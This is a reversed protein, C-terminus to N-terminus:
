VKLRISFKRIAAFLFIATMVLLILTEDWVYALGNGKLMIDKLIIIFWRPPLCASLWQLALPMNEIPFIFGSLLMTPLMLIFLSAFMAVQQSKAITSILIGVSLSLTIYLLLEALLLVISGSVPLGFVFHGLLLIMLGNCFALLVYPTVKGIIIQSPKLPSVLIVELTGLEKERTVSISTLLASILMLILAMTGPVFMYASILNENFVMRLQADVMMQGVTPGVIEAQYNRIIGSLYGVATNAVNPDSADTIIQLNAQQGSDIRDGFGPEFVLVAKVRGTKFESSIGEEDHINGAFEFYGSSFVKTLIKRTHTDDSKDFVAIGINKFDSNVVYGFILIQMIPIGFLILLTRRDRFIHNFEKKVLSTFRSM